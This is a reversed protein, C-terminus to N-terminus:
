VCLIDTSFRDGPYAKEREVDTKEVNFYYRHLGCYLYNSHGILVLSLM